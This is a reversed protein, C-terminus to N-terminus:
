LIMADIAHADIPFNRNLENAVSRRGQHMGCDLLLKFDGVEVLYKSGTVEQAAGFFTIKM